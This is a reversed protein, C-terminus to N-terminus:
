CSACKSTSTGSGNETLVFPPLALLRMATAVDDRTSSQASGSRFADASYPTTTSSGWASRTTTIPFWISFSIPVSIAIFYPPAAFM